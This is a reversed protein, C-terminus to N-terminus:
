YLIPFYGLEMLVSLVEDYNPEGGVETYSYELVTYEDGYDTTISLPLGAENYRTTTVITEGYSTLMTDTSTMARDDYVCSYTYSYGESESYSGGIVRGLADYETSSEWSFTYGEHTETYSVGIERGEGDYSLKLESSGDEAVHRILTAQGRDNFEYFSEHGYGESDEYKEYTVVGKGGYGYTWTWGYDGDSYNETICNGKGDYIYNWRQDGCVRSILNGQGDYTYYSTLESGDEVVTSQALQGKENYSYFETSVVDRNHFREVVELNGNDDYAWYIGHNEVYDMGAEMNTMRGDPYYSCSMYHVKEDETFSLGTIRGNEDYGFSTWEYLYPTAEGAKFNKLGVGQLAYIPEPEDLTITNTKEDWGVELGLANAIARVPLYTSGGMLFPEVYNGNVDTPTVLAAHLYIRVDKYYVDAKVIKSTKAAEGYGMNVEAGTSLHITNSDAFWMVDLGLAGCLARVPLYTTGEIIFPETPNGKIDRPILEEGNVYISIGRYYLEKTEKRQQAAAATIGLSLLLTFLLLLSIIRKM